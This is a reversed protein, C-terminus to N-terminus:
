LQIYRAGKIEEKLLRQREEENMVSSYLLAARYELERRVEPIESFRSAIRVEREKMEKLWARGKDNFALIRLTDTDAAAKIEEKSVQLLASLCTRRIRGATYRYTVAHHLFEQWNESISAATKLHTEIGESFLAFDRLRNKDSMLLFTRLYPYYQEWCCLHSSQLDEAMPTTGDIARDEYLAKRIAMASPMESMEEGLYDNTREVILPRIDTGAMAKLYSVGLIDNPAMASTLLSYAKPYSLGQSMMERLHDPNVSTEAIEMLNELNGCESGFCISSVGANQLIKVAGAAFVSASQVAFAYPLEIVADMGNKVAAEARKWKDIIAMEGRQVFNGSMVAILVDCGSAERAKQIHYLHGNHLPNYEATIGCINM